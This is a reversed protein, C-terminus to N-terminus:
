KESNVEHRRRHKGHKGFSSMSYSFLKSNPNENTNDSFDANGDNNFQVNVNVDTGLVEGTPKDNEDHGQRRSAWTVAAPPREPAERPVGRVFDQEDASSCFKERRLFKEQGNRTRKSDRHM